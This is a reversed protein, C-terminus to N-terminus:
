SQWGDTCGISVFFYVKEKWGVGSFVSAAMRDSLYLSPEKEESLSLEAFVAKM